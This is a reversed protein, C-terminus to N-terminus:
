RRSGTATSRIQLERLEHWRRYQDAKSPDPDEYGQLWFGFWDVNGQQSTMRDRPRVLVHEADPLYLLEVPKGLRSLGAYWEWASFLSMPHYSEERVPTDIRSLNFDPSNKIWAALGEHGFYRVEM